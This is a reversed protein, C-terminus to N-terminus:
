DCQATCERRKDDEFPTSQVSHLIQARHSHFIQNENYLLLKKSFAYMPAPPQRKRLDKVGSRKTRPHCRLYRKCLVNVGIFQFKQATQKIHCTVYNKANQVAM